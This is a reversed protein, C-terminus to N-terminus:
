KNNLLKNKMLVFNSLTDASFRECVADAVAKTERNMTTM